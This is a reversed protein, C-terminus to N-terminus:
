GLSLVGCGIPLIAVRWVGHAIDYMSVSGSTTLMSSFDAGLIGDYGIGKLVDVQKSFMWNAADRLLEALWNNIDGAIDAYASHAPVLLVTLLALTMAFAIKFRRDGIAKNVISMHM